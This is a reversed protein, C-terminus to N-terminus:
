AIKEPIDNPIDKNKKIQTNREKRYMASRMGNNKATFFNIVSLVDQAIDLEPNKDTHENLVVLKCNFKDCIWQILDFGFRSLRDQHTVVLEEISKEIIGDLITQLGKRKWNIGSAIDTIIEHNPYRKSLYETQRTLDEKQHNSSVRAYCVRRKGKRETSSVFKNAGIINLFCQYDFLRSGSNEIKIYKLKGSDAWKRLTQSSIDFNKKIFSAKVFKANSM